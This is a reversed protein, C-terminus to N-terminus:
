QTLPFEGNIIKNGIDSVSVDANSLIVVGKGAKKDFAIYSSYGGTKGEIGLISGGFKNNYSGWALLLRNGPEFPEQLKRMTDKLSTNTQGMNAAVFKLMDNASSRLGGAGEFSTFNWSPTAAFQAKSSYGTAMRKELDANLAVGTATMGLPTTVRNKVLTDYDTGARQSLAQGLLGNGFSSYEFRSGVDYKLQYASLFDYANNVTFGAYPNDAGTQKLNAPLAPLGSRHASLDALTIKRDDSYPVNVNAPLYKALPDKLRIESKEAMDMMTISTFVSTISGIEFLTDADVPRRDALNAYGYSIVRSGKDDVIGVVIGVGKKETDVRQKLVNLVDADSMSTAAHAQFAGLALTAMLLKMPLRRFTKKM